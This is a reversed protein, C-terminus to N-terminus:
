NQRLSHIAQRRKGYKKDEQETGQEQKLSNM